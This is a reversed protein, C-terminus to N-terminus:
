FKCFDEIDPRHLNLKAVLQPTQNIIETGVFDFKSLNEVGSITDPKYFSSRRFKQNKYFEYFRYNRGTYTLKYENCGQERATKIQFPVLYQSITGLHKVYHDPNTCLRHIWAINDRIQLGAFCLCIDNMYLFAFNGTKLRWIFSFGLSSPDDTELSYNSMDQNRSEKIEYWSHLETQIKNISEIYPYQDVLIYFKSNSTNVRIMDRKPDKM